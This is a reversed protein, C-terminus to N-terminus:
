HKVSYTRTSYANIKGSDDLDDWEITLVTIGCMSLRPLFFSIYNTIKRTQYLTPQHKNEVLRGHAAAIDLAIYNRKGWCGGVYMGVILMCVGPRATVMKGWVRGVDGGDQTRNAGISHLHRINPLHLVSQSHRLSFTLIGGHSQHRFPKCNDRKVPGPGPM